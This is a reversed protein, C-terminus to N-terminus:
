KNTRFKRVYDFHKPKHVHIKAHKAHKTNYTKKNKIRNDSETYKETYIIM